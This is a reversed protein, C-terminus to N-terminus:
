NTIGRPEPFYKALEEYGKGKKYPLKPPMSYRNKALFGPREEVHIEREGSGEAHGVKKNFGVDKEKLTHRQKIFGVLQCDEMVIGAAKENLKIKYRSYPDTNPDDFRKIEEHAILIVAMGADRLALLGDMLERWEAQALVYGKGYGYGEIDAVSAGKENVPNDRIVKDWILPEVGDLCDLGFTKYEHPETLLFGIAAYIDEMSQAHAPLGTEDDIPTEMEVGTPPEQGVTSVYYTDPFEALLSTKGTGPPGYFLAIPPKENKTSKTNKPSFAM